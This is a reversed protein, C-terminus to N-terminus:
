FTRLSGVDEGAMTRGRNGTRKQYSLTAICSSAGPAIRWIECKQKHRTVQLSHYRFDNIISYSVSLIKRHKREMDYEAVTQFWEESTKHNMKDLVLNVVFDTALFVM